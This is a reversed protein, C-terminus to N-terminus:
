SLPLFIIHKLEPIDGQMKQFEPGVKYWGTIGTLGVIREQLGLAFAMEAMNIDHIVMREPIKDLTLPTGCNDVTVAQATTIGFFLSCLLSLSKTKM